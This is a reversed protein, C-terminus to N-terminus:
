SRSLPWAGNWDQNPPDMEILDLRDLLLSTPQDEPRDDSCKEFMLRAQEFAGTRYTGLATEYANLFAIEELQVGDSTGLLEHLDIPAERGPLQVHDIQRTIFQDGLYQKTAGSILIDVEYIQCARVLAEAVAVNDGMITFSRIKDSGMTGVISDDSSIAILPRHQPPSAEPRWKTQRLAAMCALEAQNADPTFPPGFFALVTDGMMKDVVGNDRAVEISMASYYSNIRDVIREPPNREAYDAFGKYQALSVTMARRNSDLLSTEGILHEVIRPDIYKGFTDKIRDKVRLGEVMTNFTDGLGSIEDSGQVEVSSDLDGQEIRKAAAVLTRIPGTIVGTIMFTGVIGVALAVLAAILVITHVRAEHEEARGAADVMAIRMANTLADLDVRVAAGKDTFVKFAANTAPVDENRMAQALANASAAFAAGDRILDQAPPGLLASIEPHGIVAHHDDVTKILELVAAAEAELLPALTAQDHAGAGVGARLMAYLEAERKIEQQALDELMVDLPLVHEHLSKLEHHVRSLGDVAVGGVIALLALLAASLLSIKARISM